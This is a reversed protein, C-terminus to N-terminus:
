AVAIDPRYCPSSVRSNSSPLGVCGLCTEEEAGAAFGSEEVAVVVVALRGPEWLDLKGVMTLATVAATHSCDAVKAVLRVSDHAVV